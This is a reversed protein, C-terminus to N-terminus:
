ATRRLLAIVFPSRLDSGFHQADITVTRERLWTRFDKQTLKPTRCTRADSKKMVGFAERFRVAGGAGVPEVNSDLPNM